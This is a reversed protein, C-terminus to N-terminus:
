SKMLIQSEFSTRAYVISMGSLNSYLGPPPPPTLALARLANDYRKRLNPRYTGSFGYKLRLKDKNESIRPFKCTVCLEVTADLRNEEVNFCTCKATEFM